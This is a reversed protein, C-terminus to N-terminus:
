SNKDLLSAYKGALAKRSYHELGDMPNDPLGGDLYSQYLKSIAEKMKDKGGMLLSAFLGEAGMNDINDKLASTFNKKTLLVIAM